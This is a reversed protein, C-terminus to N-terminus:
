RTVICETRNFLIKRQNGNLLSQSKSSKSSLNIAFFSKVVWSAMVVANRSATLNNSGNMMTYRGHFTCPYPSTIFCKVGDIVDLM